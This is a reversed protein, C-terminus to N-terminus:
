EVAPEMEYRSTDNIYKEFDWNSAEFMQMIYLLIALEQISKGEVGV